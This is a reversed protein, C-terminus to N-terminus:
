QRPFGAVFTTGASLTLTKGNGSADAATTGSTENCKWYGLLGTQPATLEKNWSAQIQAATRATNWIRVEDVSGTLTYATGGNGHQGIVLNPGLGYVIALSAAATSRLAGDVYFKVSSGDKTVAIHHWANDKLNIGGLAYEQWSDAGSHIFFLLAGNSEMRLGYNDGNSLLEAGNPSTAQAKVWLEVTLNQANYLNGTAVSARGTTGNFSVANNATPLPTPPTNLNDFKAAGPNSVSQTTGARLVVKLQTLDFAKAFSRRVTWSSADPSTELFITGGAERIRWWRMATANFSVNTTSNTGNVRHRLQLGSKGRGITISNNADRELVLQTEANTNPTTTLPVEVYVATDKLEYLTKSAVGFYNSGSTTPAVTLVGNQTTRSATGLVQWKAADIVTGTFADTLQTVPTAPPTADGLPVGATWATGGALTLAHLGAATVDAATTGAGEEAPIHAVLGALGSAPLRASHYRAIDADSRTVSWFRLEDLTGNFTYNDSGFGHRGVTFESGWAYAIPGVNESVARAVGDVFLKTTTASRTVALHHWLGDAVNLNGASVEHWADDTSYYIFALTGDEFIRLMWNDGMSLIDSGLSDTSVAKIMTEVTFQELRFDQATAATAYDNLGDFLLSHTIQQGEPYVSVSKTSTLGASNTVSLVLQVYYTGDHAPFNFSGTAGTHTLLTHAHCSDLPCHQIVVQWHLGSPPITGDQADTASGSFTIAQGPTAVTTSAPSHITLEPAILGSRILLTKTSANNFEDTVTLTVTFTGNATFVHTPSAEDSPATGDGFDWAFTINDNEPDSSGSSSFNVTLPAPGSTKDAAAFAFPAQNATSYTVHYLSGTYIGVYYIDGEPGTFFGVPGAANSAFVQNSGPVMNNSGDLALTYIQNQGYDGYFYRNQYHAPYNSGSYFVGGVSAGGPPHPFTYTPFKLNAPPNQYMQQCFPLDKYKGSIGIAGNQQENGEYCPWGLNAGSPVANVEEWNTWGVEGAVVLGDSPRVSMRFSNRMGSAYVKSRVDDPNGTYFPNDAPATGNPNLRLIKGALSDLNQARLALPDVEDYSAADGITLYLKGDPGFTVTGPAHSLGDAPICDTNVPYDQCSSQSPTGAVSGLLVQESGAQAVDGSATVRLLRGTKPADPVAPNNDYTFLLYVYHNTAFNPDLALGLLGRDGYNNVNAVTYFPQPLVQGNKVIKVEGNKQAVLIRGDPSFQAAVPTDFGSAVSQLAFGQPAGTNPLSDARVLSSLVAGFGFLGLIAGCIMLTVTRKKRIRRIIM